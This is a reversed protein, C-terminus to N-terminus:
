YEKEFVKINGPSLDGIPSEITPNIILEVKKGSKKAGGISLVLNILEKYSSGGFFQMLNIKANIPIIVSGGGEPVEFKEEISGSVTRKGELLISYSLKSITARASLKKGKTTNPNTAQLNIRFTLDLKKNTFGQLIKTGDILNMDKVSAFNNIDAGSLNYNETNIIEFELDKLELLSKTIDSVRTCSSLLLIIIFFKYM